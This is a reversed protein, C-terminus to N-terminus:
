RGRFLNRTNLLTEAIDAIKDFDISPSDNRSQTNSEPSLKVGEDSNITIDEEDEVSEVSLWSSFTALQRFVPERTIIHLFGKDSVTWGTGAKIIRFKNDEFNIRISM